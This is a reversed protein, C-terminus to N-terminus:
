RNTGAESHTRPFRPRKRVIKSNRRSSPFCKKSNKPTLVEKADLRWAHIECADMKELDETDAVIIDGKRVRGAILVYGLFIGPVDKKGFQHLRLQDRASSPYYEVM